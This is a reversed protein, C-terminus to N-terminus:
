DKLNTSSRATGKGPENERPEKPDKEREGDRGRRRWGRGGGQVRGKM